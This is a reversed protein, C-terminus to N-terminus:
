NHKGHKTTNETSVLIKYHKKESHQSHTMFNTFINQSKTSSEPGGYLNAKKQRVVANWGPNSVACKLGGKVLFIYVSVDVVFTADICYIGDCFIM